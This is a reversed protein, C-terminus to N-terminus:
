FKKLFSDLGPGNMKLTSKKGTKEVSWGWTGIPSGLYYVTYDGDMQDFDDNVTGEFALDLTTSGETVSCEITVDQGDIESGSGLTTHGSGDSFQFTGNIDTGDQEIEFEIPFPDTDMYMTGEWSGTLSAQITIDQETTSSGGDGTATLTITYDGPAAYAHTPATKTSTEDDGFDWEYSTAEASCNEFDIDEGVMPDDENDISESTMTFCATPEKGCNVMFALVAIFAFPILLKTKV